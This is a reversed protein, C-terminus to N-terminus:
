KKEGAGPGAAKEGMQIKVSKKLVGVVKGKQRFKSKTRQGRVPQGLIHRWGRYTKLDIMRQIDFRTAVDLDSGSVHMIEGTEVDCRRNLIYPPIGFKAPNKIIEEMKPVMGAEEVDKLKMKPDIGGAICVANAMSWSIGKIGLIAVLVPKDGDLDTGSMRVLSLRKTEEQFRKKKEEKKGEVPKAEAEKPKDPDKVNKGSGGM